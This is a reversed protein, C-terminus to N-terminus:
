QDALISSMEKHGGPESSKLFQWHKTLKKAVDALMVSSGPYRPKINFRTLRQTISRKTATGWVVTKSFGKRGIGNTPNKCQCCCICLYSIAYTRITCLVIHICSTHFFTRCALMHVIFPRIYAHRVLTHVYYPLIYSTHVYIYTISFYQLHAIVVYSRIYTCIVFTHVYIKVLAPDISKEIFPLCPACQFSVTRFIRFLYEWFHFQAAKNGIELNM